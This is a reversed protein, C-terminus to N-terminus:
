FNNADSFFTEISQNIESLALEFSDPILSELTERAIVVRSYVEDNVEAVPIGDLYNKLGLLADNGFESSFKLQAAKSFVNRQM